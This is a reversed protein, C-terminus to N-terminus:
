QALTTPSVITTSSTETLTTTTTVESSVTTPSVITTSSTETLTTTTTVESSVTTPSVITTSSTATLTTTETEQVTEISVSVASSESQGEVSSTSTLEQKSEVAGAAAVAEVSSSTSTNETASNISVSLSPGSPLLSLIDTVVTPLSAIPVPTTSVTENVPVAQQTAQTKNPMIVANIGHLVGNKLLVNPLIVESKDVFVTGNATKEITVSSLPNATQYVTKNQSILNSYLVNNYLVHDLIVSNISIPPQQESTSNLKATITSNFAKNEPAFVTIGPVNDLTSFLGSKKVLDYAEKYDTNNELVVSLPQPITLIKDIIHIVGNGIKIDAQIVKPRSENPNYTGDTIVVENGQKNVGVVQKGGSPLLVYQPNMLRTNYFGLQETINSSYLTENLVHYQIVPLLANQDLTINGLVAFASDEPVLFTYNSSLFSRSVTTANFEASDLLKAM